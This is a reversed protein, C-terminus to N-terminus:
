YSAALEPTRQSSALQRTVEKAIRSIRAIGSFTLDVGASREAHVMFPLSEIVSQASTRNFQTPDVDLDRLGALGFSSARQPGSVDSM